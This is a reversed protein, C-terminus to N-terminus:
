GDVAAVLDEDEESEVHLAPVEAVRGDDAIAVLTMSGEVAVAAEGAPLDEAAAVVRVQVSTEGADYVYAWIHAVHGVPIPEHFSIGDVGVTVVEAGAFAMASMGAVREMWNLVNGGNAGELANAQAPFVFRRSDIRSDTPTPM